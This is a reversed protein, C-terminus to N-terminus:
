PSVWNFAYPELRQRGNNACWQAYLNNMAIAVDDAHRDRVCFIITKQEPGGTDLLYKFLDQCMALVRDPLLLRAEYDTKQYLDDLEARTVPQGTIANMPNRALIDDVTIGTDDLNVRGKQLECAALYGDEIAQAMDYEYAPEGFHKVNDATVQLDAAAEKTTESVELQRPTATLGIQVANPNRTLIESWKGWASRHCEDIIIHSFYDPPYFTQLFNATGDENDVDLTQYTAVHIRANRANNTGDPKRYVEAADAGFVNQFAGLGQARLEDRDCVFLARKLQGADGIKKMLNVAIFTKGAGTALTLLARKEGRALKELV